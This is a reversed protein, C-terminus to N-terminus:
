GLFCNCAFQLRFGRHLLFNPHSLASVQDTRGGTSFAMGLIGPLFPKFAQAVEDADAASGPPRQSLRFRQWHRKVLCFLQKPIM